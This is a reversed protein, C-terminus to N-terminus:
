QGLCQRLQRGLHVRRLRFPSQCLEPELALRGFQRRCHLGPKVPLATHPDLDARGPAPGAHLGTAPQDTGPPLREGEPEPHTVLCPSLAPIRLGAPPKSARSLASATPSPEGVADM